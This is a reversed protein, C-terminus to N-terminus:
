VFIIEELGYKGDSTDFPKSSSVNRSRNFTSFSLIGKECIKNININTQLTICLIKIVAMDVRNIFKINETNYGKNLEM